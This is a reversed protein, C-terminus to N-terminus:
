RSVGPPLWVGRPSTTPMSTALWSLDYPRPFLSVSYVEVQSDPKMCFSFFTASILCSCLLDAQLWVRSLWSFRPFVVRSPLSFVDPFLTNWAVFKSQIYVKKLMVGVEMRWCIVWWILFFFIVLIVFYGTCSDPVSVHISFSPSFFSCISIPSSINM